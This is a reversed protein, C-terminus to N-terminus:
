KKLRRRAGALGVLGVGLLFITSPEPVNSFIMDNSFRIKGYEGTAAIALTYMSLQYEHSPDWADYTFLFDDWNSYTGRYNLVGELNDFYGILTSTSLDDIKIIVRDLLCWNWGDTDFYIGSGQGNFDPMFTLTTTADAYADGNSNWMNAEAYVENYSARSKVVIDVEPHIPYPFSIIDQVPNSSSIAYIADFPSGVQVSGSISFNSDILTFSSPIAHAVSNLYFITVFLFLFMFIKKM